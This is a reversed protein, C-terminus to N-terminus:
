AAMRQEGRHRNVTFPDGILWRWTGDPQRRAVEIAYVSMPQPASIKWETHLLAIDGSQVIQKITFEFSAHAQAFPALEHKLGDWRKRLEGSENIFVVEPDYLERLAELDGNAM